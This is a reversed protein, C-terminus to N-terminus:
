NIPPPGPAHAADTAMDIFKPMLKAQLAMGAHDGRQQAALYRSQTLAYANLAAAEREMQAVSALGNRAIESAEALEPVSPTSAQAAKDTDQRPRVKAQAAAVQRWADSLHQRATNDRVLTTPLGKPIPLAPKTHVPVLIANTVPGGIPRAPPPPPTSGGGGSGGVTAGGSGASGGGDNPSGGSKAGGSKSDPPLPGGGLNGWGGCQEALDSLERRLQRKEDESKANDYDKRIQSASSRCDQPTKSPRKPKTDANRKVNSGQDTPPIPKMPPIPKVDPIPKVEPIPEVPPIPKVPPIPEQAACTLAALLTGCCILSFRKM